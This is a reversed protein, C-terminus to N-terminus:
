SFDFSFLKFEEWHPGPFDEKVTEPQRSLVQTLGFLIKVVIFGMKVQSVNRQMWMVFEEKEASIAEKSKMDIQELIRRATERDAEKAKEDAERAEAEAEDHSLFNLAKRLDERNIKGDGDLDIEEFLSEAQVVRNLRTQRRDDATCRM